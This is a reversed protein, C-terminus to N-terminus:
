KLVLPFGDVDMSFTYVFWGELRMLDRGVQQNLGPPQRPTQCVIAPRDHLVAQLSM